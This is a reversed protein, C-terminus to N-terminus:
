MFHSHLKKAGILISISPSSALIGCLRRGEQMLLPLTQNFAEDFEAETVKTERYFSAYSPTSGLYGFGNYGRLPSMSLDLKHIISHTIFSHVFSHTRVLATAGSM